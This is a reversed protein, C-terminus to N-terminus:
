KVQVSSLKSFLEIAKKAKDTPRCLVDPQGRGAQSLKKIHSTSLFDVIGIIEQDDIATQIHQFGTAFLRSPIPPDFFDKWGGWFRRGESKPYLLDLLDEMISVDDLLCCLFRVDTEMVDSHHEEMSSIAWVKLGSGEREV